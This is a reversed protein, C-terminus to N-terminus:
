RSTCLWVPVKSRMEEDFGGQLAMHAAWLARTFHRLERVFTAVEARPLAPPLAPWTARAQPLHPPTSTHFRPSYTHLCRLGHSTRRSLTHPLTFDHTGTTLTSVDRAAIGFGDACYLYKQASTPVGYM